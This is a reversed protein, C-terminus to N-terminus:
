REGQSVMRTRKLVNLTILALNVVIVVFESQITEAADVFDAGRENQWMTFQGEVTTEEWQLWHKVDIGVEGDEKQYLVFMRIPGMQTFIAAIKARLDDPDDSLASEMLTIESAHVPHRGRQSHEIRSLPVELQEVFPLLHRIAIGFRDLHQIVGFRVLDAVSFRAAVGRGEAPISPKVVGKEVYLLIKRRTIGLIKIVDGITFVGWSWEEPWFSKQQKTSDVTM